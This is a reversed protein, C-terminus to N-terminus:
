AHPMNLFIIIMEPIAIITVFIVVLASILFIKCYLAVLRRWAARTFTSWAQSVTAYGKGTTIVPGVQGQFSRDFNIITEADAPLLSAQVRFLIVQAPITLFIVGLLSLVVMVPAAWRLAPDVKIGSEPNKPGNFGSNLDPLDIGAILAFIRPLWRTVETAAWLLVVPKWTANFTHNFSPLRSWFHLDSPRTIIIHVWATSFQILTLSALLTAISTGGTGLAGVFVLVLAVTLVAQVLFCALGRFNARFGGNAMLLRHISRASSSVAIPQGPIPGDASGDENLSVPEYEPPNEDEIIAFVPWVNHVTYNLWTYLPIFLLCNFLIILWLWAPTENVPVKTDPDMARKVLAAGVSYIM